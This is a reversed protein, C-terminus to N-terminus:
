QPLLTLLLFWVQYVLIYFLHGVRRVLKREEKDTWEASPDYRHRGEYEPIPEYLVTSAGGVFTDGTFYNQKTASLDIVTRKPVTVDTDTEENSSSKSSMTELHACRPQRASVLRQKSEFEFSHM